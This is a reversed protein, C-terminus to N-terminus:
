ADVEVVDVVGFGSGVSREAGVALGLGCVDVHCGFNLTAIARCAEVAERQM